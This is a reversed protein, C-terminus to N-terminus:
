SKAKANARSTAAYASYKTLATGTLAPKGQTTTVTAIGCNIAIALIRKSVLGPVKAHCAAYYHTVTCPACQVMIALRKARSTNHRNRAKANALWKAYGAQNVKITATPVYNTINVMTTSKVRALNPGGWQSGPLFVRCGYQALFLTYYLLVAM